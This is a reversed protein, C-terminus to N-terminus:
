PNVERVLKEVQQLVKEVFDLYDRSEKETVCDGGEYFDTNRKTRMINGITYVDPNELIESMKTLIKIHHGPVSRVRVHGVRAILAIGAKILAQFSYSFRVEPFRNKRAIELDHFANQLYREIADSTFGFEKFYGQEFDTM